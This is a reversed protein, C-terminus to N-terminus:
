ARRLLFRLADPLRAAWCAERHVAPPDEVYRLDHGERLGAALLADRTQRVDRRFGWSWRPLFRDSPVDRGERGGTDLHVRLPRGVPSRVLDLLRAQGPPFAPSMALVLGFRDPREWACWLSMLGGLSSGGILTDAPGDLVPLTAQVLPQIVEVLTRLTAGGGGADAAHRDTSPYPTYEHFRREGGNPVGVVIAEIGEAALVAMTEDVRWEDRHATATDFLNQGDLLYAVPYRRGPVLGSVPLLCTVDRTAMLAPMRVSAAWLEGTVTGPPRPSVYPRWLSPLAPTAPPLSV